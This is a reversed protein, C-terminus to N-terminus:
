ILNMRARRTVSSAAPGALLIMGAIIEVVVVRDLQEVRRHVIRVSLNEVLHVDVAREHLACHEFLADTAGITMVRVRSLHFEFVIPQASRAVLMRCGFVVRWSMM